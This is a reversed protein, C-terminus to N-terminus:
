VMLSSPPFRAGNYKGVKEFHTFVEELDELKGDM